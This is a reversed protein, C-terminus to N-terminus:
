KEVLLATSKSIRNIARYQHSEICHHNNLYLFPIDEKFSLTLVYKQICVSNITVYKGEKKIKHKRNYSFQSFGYFKLLAHGTKESNKKIHKGGKKTFQYKEISFLYIHIIRM